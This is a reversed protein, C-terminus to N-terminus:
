TSADIEEYVWPARKLIIAQACGIAANPNKRHEADLNEFCAAVDVLISRLEKIEVERSPKRKRTM